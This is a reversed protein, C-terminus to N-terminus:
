LLMWYWINKKKHKVDEKADGDKINNCRNEEGDYNLNNQINVNCENIEDSNSEEFVETDFVEIDELNDNQINIDDLDDFDTSDLNGDDDQLESKIQKNEKRQKDYFKIGFLKAYINFGENKDYVAWISVIKFLFSLNFKGYLHSKNDSIIKYKYPWFLLLLVLALIFLILYLIILGIIKLINLFTILM